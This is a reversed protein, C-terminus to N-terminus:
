LGGGWRYQLALGILDFHGGIRTEVAKSAYLKVSYHRTVSLAVTVGLRANSQTDDNEKGDVATRGGGYYTGDLSGWLAESFRYIAHAQVAYVPDQKRTNGGFFDHNETYVTISPAVELTLPGLAKSIGLEPKFAWRNSGINILRSGDYQGLPMVVQLSAGIILDQRYDLFEPMALAPAGYFNVSLRLRPDNFGDVIREQPQGQFSATGSVWSYPVIADIKASKGFLGFARAYALISSHVHIKADTIPLGPDTVVDGQQYAYGAVVFNLGVPTNAYSRPELDQARAAGPALWVALCAALVIARMRMAWRVGGGPGSLKRELL